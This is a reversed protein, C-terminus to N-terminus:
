VTSGGGGFCAQDLVTPEEYKETLKKKGM